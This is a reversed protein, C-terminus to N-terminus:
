MQQFCSVKQSRKTIAGKDRSVLKGPRETTLLRCGPSAANHFLVALDVSTPNPLGHRLYFSAPTPKGPYDFLSDKM